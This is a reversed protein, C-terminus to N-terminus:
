SVACEGSARADTQVHHPGVRRNSLASHLHVVVQCNLLGMRQYSLAAFSTSFFFIANSTATSVSPHVGLHLMLPAITYGGGMGLLGALLGGLISVVGINLYGSFNWADNKGDFDAQRHQASNVIASQVSCRQYTPKCLELLMFIAWFVSTAVLGKYNNWCSAAKQKESVLPEEAAWGQAEDNVAAEQGPDARNQDKEERVMRAAKLTANYAVYGLVLTLTISTLWEPLVVNLVVGWQMIGAFVAVFFSGGGAGTAPAVSSVLFCLVLSLLNTWSNSQFGETVEVPAGLPRNLAQGLNSEDAGEVYEVFFCVLWVSLATLIGGKLAPLM